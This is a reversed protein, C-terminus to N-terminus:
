SAPNGYTMFVGLFANHLLWSLSLVGFLHPAHRQLEIVNVVDSMNIEADGRIDNAPRSSKLGQLSTPRMLPLLRQIELIQANEPSM